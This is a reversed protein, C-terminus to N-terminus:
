RPRGYRRVVWDGDATESTTYIFATSVAIIKSAGPLAITRVLAGNQDHEAYLETKYGAPQNLWLFFHGAADTRVEQFPGKIPALESTGRDLGSPAPLGRFLGRDADTTTIPAYPLKARRTRGSTSIFELERQQGRAIWVTGDLQVGWLDRPAYEAPVMMRSQGVQIPATRLREVFAVTDIQMVGARRRLIPVSDGPAFPQTTMGVSFHNGLTDLRLLFPFLGPPSAYQERYELTPSLVTIRRALGDMVGIRGGAMAYLYSPTRYEGPGDGARGISDRRGSPFDLRLLGPLKPDPVLLVGTASEIAVDPQDLGDISDIAPALEVPMSSAGSDTARGCAGLACATLVALVSGVNM